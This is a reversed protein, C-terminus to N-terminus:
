RKIRKATKVKPDRNLEAHLRDREFENRRWMTTVSGNVYKVKVGYRPQDVTAV